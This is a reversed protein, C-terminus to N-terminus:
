DTTLRSCSEHSFGSRFMGAANDDTTVASLLSTPTQAVPSQISSPENSARSPASEPTNLGNATSSMAGNEAKPSSLNSEQAQAETQQPPTQKKKSKQNRVVSRPLAPVVRPRNLPQRESPPAM